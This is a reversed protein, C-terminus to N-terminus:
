LLEEPALPAMLRWFTRKFWSVRPEHDFAVAQGDRDTYRWRLDGDRDATVRFAGERCAHDITELLQQALPASRVLLGMETNHKDSRPDINMSGVLVTAGDVVVAKSHLNTKSHIGSSRRPSEPSFEPRLEYLEVGAALLGPRYKSYGVHVVPADTAALAATLVRVHVGRERLSRILAMGKEGPVFYPTVILVDRRASQMLEGLEDFMTEADNPEGEKLTKSPRDAIVKAPAWQLRLGKGFGSRLRQVEARAAEPLADPSDLPVASAATGEPAVIASVPYALDSNWFRDFVTSLQHVAPGAVLVDLDVFNADEGQLFYPDGINRGGTVALANDAIFAKNHMRSNIRQADHLSAMIKTVASFRGAPLPNYLRVEIRPHRTMRLLADDAGTTALDDVLLRVRVGREAAARVRQMLVRASADNLVAYYQLDLTRQAGDALHMLIALADGGSEIIRLGSLGAAKAPPQAMVGLASPTGPAIAQSATRPPM